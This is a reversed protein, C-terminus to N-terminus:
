ATAADGEPDGAEADTETPAPGLPQELAPDHFLADAGTFAEARRV